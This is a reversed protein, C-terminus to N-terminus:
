LTVICYVVCHRNNISLDQEGYITVHVLILELIVPVYIGSGLTCNIQEGGSFLQFSLM